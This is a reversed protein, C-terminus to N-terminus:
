SKEFHAIIFKHLGLAIMHLKKLNELLKGALKKLDPLEKTSFM